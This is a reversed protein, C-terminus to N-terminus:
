LVMVIGAILTWGVWSKIETGLLFVGMLIM